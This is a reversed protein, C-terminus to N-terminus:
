DAIKTTTSDTEGKSDVWSIEVTDEPEGGKFQFALYPDKSVGGSFLAKMVVQDKWKATVEQIFHAPILEETEKDKRLGTEMPHEIISKVTTVGDKVKARIRISSAM